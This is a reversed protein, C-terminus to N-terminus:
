KEEKETVEEIKVKHEPVWSKEIDLADILLTEVDAGADLEDGEELIVEVEVLAKVIFKKM